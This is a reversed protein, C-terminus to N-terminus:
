QTTDKRAQYLLEDVRVCRRQGGRSLTVSDGWRAATHKLTRGRLRRPRLLTDVVIRDVSRVVGTHLEIEYGPWEDSLPVWTEVAM